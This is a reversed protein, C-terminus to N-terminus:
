LEVAAPQIEPGAQRALAAAGGDSLAAAGSPAEDAAIWREGLVPRDAGRAQSKGQSRLYKRCGSVAQTRYLGVAVSVFFLLRGSAAHPSWLAITLPTARM